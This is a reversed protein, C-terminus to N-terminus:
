DDTGGIDRRYWGGEMRIRSLGRYAKARAAAPSDAVATVGLVRGGDSVPVGGDERVGAYDVRTGEAEAGEIGDIRRGTVPAAPYGESALVVCCSAGGRWRPTVAELRGNRAADLCSFLDGDFLPLLAQAEPDGFRVNYELCKAGRPTVMVGIFLFGPYGLSDVNLGELTPEIINMRIDRRVADDVLPHPAVVGMGGTNPGVDGEGARKHDRAPPFELFVSGDTIGIVSTEWGSLCEELVVSDGASGFSRETMLSDLAARAEKPNACIIVGKGAALGDAKVVMPFGFQSLASRADDITACRRYAATAVGHRSMFDKAFGKSAELRASSATPGFAPIGAAKLRDVLGEALPAEPGPVVLDVSQSRAIEVIADPDGAPVNRCGPVGATGPNGPSCLVEDVTESEAFARVLAHERGGGGIVLVKRGM